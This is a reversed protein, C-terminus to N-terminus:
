GYVGYPYLPFSLLGPLASGAFFGGAGGIAGAAGAAAGGLLLKKKILTAESFRVFHDCCLVFLIVTAVLLRM